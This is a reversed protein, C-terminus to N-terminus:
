ASIKYIFVEKPGIFLRHDENNHSDVKPFPNRGTSIGREIRETARRVPMKYILEAGSLSDHPETLVPILSYKTIFDTAEHIRRSVKPSTGFLVSKGIADLISKIITERVENSAQPFQLDPSAKTVIEYFDTEKRTRANQVNTHVSLYGAYNGITFNVTQVLRGKDTLVEAQIPESLDMDGSEPLLLDLKSFKKYTSAILNNVAQENVIQKNVTLKVQM